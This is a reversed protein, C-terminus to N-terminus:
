RASIPCPRPRRRHRDPPQGRGPSPSLGEFRLGASRLAPAVELHHPPETRAGTGCGGADGSAVVVGDAAAESCGSRDEM